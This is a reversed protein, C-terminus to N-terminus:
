QRYATTENGSPFQHIAEMHVSEIQFQVYLYSSKLIQNSVILSVAYLDM